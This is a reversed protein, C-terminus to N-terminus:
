AASSSSVAADTTTATEVPADETVTPETATTTTTTEAGTTTTADITTSSSTTTDIITSTASELSSALASTTNLNLVQAVGGYNVVPVNKQEYMVAGNFGSGVTVTVTQTIDVFRKDAPTTLFPLLSTIEPALTLPNANVATGKAPVVVPPDFNGKLVGLKLYKGATSTFYVTSDVARVTYPTDLPNSFKVYIYPTLGSLKLQTEVVLSPPIGQLNTKLKLQSLGPQLPVISTSTPTGTVTLPTNKGTLYNSLLTALSVLDTSTMKMSATMENRGPKIPASPLTVYGVTSGSADM